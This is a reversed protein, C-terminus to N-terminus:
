RDFWARQARRSPEALGGVVKTKPRWLPRVPTLTSIRKQASIMYCASMEPWFRRGLEEWKTSKARRGHLPWRFFYREVSFVRMDLVKMWDRLVRDSILDQTGPPIEAGPVLRRLGWLGGPRFGLLTLHGGARLVRHVERLVAHPHESYDLTHPLLISDVSDSAIPLRHSEAIVLDDAGSGTDDPGVLLTQRQTRSHQTFQSSDGWVGVQVCEEGFEDEITEQVLRTEMELLNRGLPTMLWEFPTLPYKQITKKAM